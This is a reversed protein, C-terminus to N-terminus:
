GARKSNVTELYAAHLEPNDKVAKSTSGCDKVAAKWASVVDGTITKSKGGALKLARRGPRPGQSELEKIQDAQSSVTQELWIMRAHGLSWGKDISKLIFDSNADPLASRLQKISAATSRSQPEEEDEESETEEDEEESVEEEDEESETEEDEEAVLDSSCV